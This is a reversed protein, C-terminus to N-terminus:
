PEREYVHKVEMSYASTGHISTIMPDIEFWNDRVRQTLTKGDKSLKWEERIVLNAKKVGYASGRFTTEITEVILLVGNNWRTVTKLPSKRDTWSNEEGSEDTLFILRNIKEVGNLVSRGVFDIERESQTIVITDGVERVTNSGTSTNKSANKLKWTGNFNPLDKAKQANSFAALSLVLCIAFLPKM